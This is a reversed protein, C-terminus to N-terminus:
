LTTFARLFSNLDMYRLLFAIDNSTMDTNCIYHIALIERTSNFQKQFTINEENLKRQSTRKSLDLKKAVDEIDCAGGPLLETM